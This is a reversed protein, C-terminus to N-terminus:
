KLGYLSKKLYCVHNPKDKDEFDRPRLRYIKEEFDGHLFATKVDLQELEWNFHAVLALMVKITTYKVVLSFIENYDVWEKQTFGKAVLRTKFRIPENGSTGKKVKYIWKCGVLCKDKPKPVLEWTENKYLSNM